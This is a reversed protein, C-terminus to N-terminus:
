NASMLMPVVGVRYRQQDREFEVGSFRIGVVKADGVVDGVRLKRGNSDYAFSQRRGVAVHRIVPLKTHTLRPAPAAAHVPEPQPKTPQSVSEPVRQPEHTRVELAVVGPVQQALSRLQSVTQEDAQGADCEFRGASLHRAECSRDALLALRTLSEAMQRVDHLQLNVELGFAHIEHELRQRMSADTVLGRVSAIGDRESLVMQGGLANFSEILGQLTPKEERAALSASANVAGGVVALTMVMAVSLGALTLGSWNRSKSSAATKSAAGPPQAGRICPARQLLEVSLSAAGIQLRVSAVGFAKVGLPLEVGAVKVGATLVQAVLLGDQESLCLAQDPVGEDMLVLDCDLSSGLYVDESTSAIFAAGRHLGELVSVLMRDSANPVQPASFHPTAVPLSNTEM